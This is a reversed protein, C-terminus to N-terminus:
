LNHNNFGEMYDAIPDHFVLPSQQLENNIKGMSDLLGYEKEEKFNERLLKFSSFRLSLFNENAFKSNKEHENNNCFYL